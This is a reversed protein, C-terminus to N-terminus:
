INIGSEAISGKLEAKGSNGILPSSHSFRLLSQRYTFVNRQRRM